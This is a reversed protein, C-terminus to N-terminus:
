EGYDDDDGTNIAHQVAAEGWNEPTGLRVAFMCPANDEEILTVEEAITPVGMHLTCFPPTCFKQSIGIALWTEFSMGGVITITGTGINM